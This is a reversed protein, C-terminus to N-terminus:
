IPEELSMKAGCCGCYRQYTDQDYVYAQSKKCVSCTAYISGDRFIWHGKKQVIVGNKVLLEALIATTEPKVVPEETQSIPEGKGSLDIRVIKFSDILDGIEQYPNFM